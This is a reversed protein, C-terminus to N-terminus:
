DHDWLYDKYAHIIRTKNSPLLKVPVPVFSQCTKIWKTLKSDIYWPRHTRGKMEKENIFCNAMAASLAKIVVAKRTDLCPIQSRLLQPFCQGWVRVAYTMAIQDIKRKFSEAERLVIEAKERLNNVYALLLISDNWLYGHAHLPMDASILHAGLQHMKRMLKSAHRGESKTSASDLYTVICDRWTAIPSGEENPKLRHAAYLM